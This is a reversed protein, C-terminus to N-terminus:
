IAFLKIVDSVTYDDRAVFWYAIKTSPKYLWVYLLGMDDTKYYANNISNYEFDYTYLKTEYQSLISSQVGSAFYEASLVIAEKGNAPYVQKFLHSNVESASYKVLGLAIM